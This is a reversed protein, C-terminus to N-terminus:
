GAKRVPRDPLRTVEQYDKGLSTELYRAVDDISVVAIDGYRRRGVTMQRSCKAQSDYVIVHIGEAM